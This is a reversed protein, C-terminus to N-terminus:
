RVDEEESDEDLDKDDFDDEDLEDFDTDEENALEDLEDELDEFQDFDETEDLYDDEEKAKRKREKTATQSLEEETQDFPYWSRLGWRSDGINVFRGDISMETYLHSIRKNLQEETMDKVDGVQKLLAHYDIPKKEELLLEYAIQLMSTEELQENSFDKISM